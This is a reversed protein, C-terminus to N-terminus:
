GSVYRAAHHPMGDSFDDALADYGSIKSVVTSWLSCSVHLGQACVWVVLWMLLPQDCEAGRDLSVVITTLIVMAAFHVGFLWRTPRFHCILSFTLIPSITRRIITRAIHFVTSGICYGLYLNLLMNKQNLGLPLNYNRFIPVFPRLGTSLYKKNPYHGM